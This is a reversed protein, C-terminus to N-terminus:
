GYTAENYHGIAMRIMTRDLESMRTLDLSKKPQLNRSIRSGDRNLPAWQYGDSVISFTSNDDGGCKLHYWPEAGPQAVSTLTCDDVVGVMGTVLCHRIVCGVGVRGRQDVAIGDDIFGRRWQRKM